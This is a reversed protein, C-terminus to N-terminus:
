FTPRLQLGYSATFIDGSELRILGDHNNVADCCCSMPEVAISLRDPPTFLQFYRYQNVGSEMWFVVQRDRAPSTFVIESRSAASPLGFCDNLHIAALRTPVVFAVYDQKAGTPISVDDLEYIQCDPLQMTWDAIGGPLSLYPHWGVGLPMATSGTNRIQTACRFGDQECLWYTVTFEFPFPYGSMVEDYAYTLRLQATQDTIQVNEVMMPRNYLLGHIAHGHRTENIPLQYTKGEFVYRGGNVRNPFPILPASKYRRDDQIVEEDAVGDLVSHRIGNMPLLLDCVRGGWAPAVVMSAGGTKPSLSIRDVSSPRVPM